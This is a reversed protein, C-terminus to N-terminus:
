KGPMLIIDKSNDNVHVFFHNGKFYEEKGNQDYFLIWEQHAPNYEITPEKFKDLDREATEQIYKEVIKRVESAKLKPPESATTQFITCEGNVCKDYTKACDMDCMSIIKSGRCEKILDSYKQQTKKNISKNVCDCGESLCSTDIRICDSDQECVQDELSIIIESKPEDAFTVVNGIASMVALILVIDKIMKLNITPVVPSSGTVGEM